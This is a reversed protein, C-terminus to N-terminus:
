RKNKRFDVKEQREVVAMRWWSKRRLSYWGEYKEEGGVILGIRCVTDFMRRQSVTNTKLKSYKVGEVVEEGRM